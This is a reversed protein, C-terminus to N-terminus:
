DKNDTTNLSTCSMKKGKNDTTDLSTCSMKKGKNDISNLSTCSMKKQTELSLITDLSMNRRRSSLPTDTTDISSDSTLKRCLLMEKVSQRFRKSLFSYMIPNIFHNILFLWNAIGSYHTKFEPSPYANKDRNANLFKGILRPLPLTLAFILVMIVIRSMKRISKRTAENATQRTSSRVVILKLIHLVITVCLPMLYVVTWLVIVFEQSKGALIYGYIILITITGILVAGLVWCGGSLMMVRQKTLVLNSKLPYAIIIYRLIAMMAVHSNAAFWTISQIIYYPKHGRLSPQRCEITAMVTDFSNAINVSLFLADAIALCAIGIFTSDRLRKDRYITAVVIVNACVGLIFAIEIASYVCADTCYGCPGISPWGGSGRGQGTPRGSLGSDGTCSSNGGNTCGYENM